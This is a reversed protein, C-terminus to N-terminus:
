MGSLEEGLSRELLMAAAGSASIEGRLLLETTNAIPMEVGHKGALACVAHTTPVGEAVTGLSDLINELIEGAGLRLGLRRNRSLDGACTLMLDGLGSLGMFTGARAGLAMGLRTIEALGRTVLAARANDGLGLGDCVGSAIAIVNKVAGGIEVGRVDTSAYCRFLQSAFTDRLRLALEPRACAVTLATPKGGAVELAFSPGSLVAYHGNMWKGSRGLADQTVCSLCQLSDQEIGKAVNVLITKPRLLMRLKMLLSRQSQCPVALVWIDSRALIEPDTTAGLGSSLAIGPLYRPNEHRDNISRAIGEDRMLMMVDHGSGALLNGLATGWGGGGYVTIM